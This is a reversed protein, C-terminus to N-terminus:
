RMWSRTLPTSKAATNEAITYIIISFVSLANKEHNILVFNRLLASAHLNRLYQYQHGSIIALTKEAFLEVANQRLMADLYAEQHAVVARLIVGALNEGAIRCLM